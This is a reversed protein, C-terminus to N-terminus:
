ECKWGRLPAGCRCCTQPIITRTTHIITEEKQLGVSCAIVDWKGESNACVNLNAPYVVGGGDEFDSTSVFGDSINFMHGVTVQDIPPLDKFKVAGFPILENSIARGGVPVGEDILYGM